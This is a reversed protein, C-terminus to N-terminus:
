RLRRRTKRIFWQAALTFTVLVGAVKATTFLFDMTRNRSSPQDDSRLETSPRREMLLGSVDRFFIDAPPVPTTFSFEQSDEFLRQQQTQGPTTAGEEAEQEDKPWSHLSVNHFLVPSVSGSRPSREAVKQM